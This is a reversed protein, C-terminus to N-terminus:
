VNPRRQICLARCVVIIGLSLFAGYPVTNIEYTTPVTPFGALAAFCITWIAFSLVTIWLVSNRPLCHPTAQTGLQLGAIIAYPGLLFNGLLYPNEFPSFAFFLFSLTILVSVMLWHFRPLEIRVRRQRRRLILGVHVSALVASNFSSLFCAVLGLSTAIFLLDNSAAMSFMQRADIVGDPLPPVILGLPLLMFFPAIGVCVFIAFRAVTNRRLRTVVFVRKWADPAAALLGLGMLAGIVFHYFYDLHWARWDALPLEWYGPRPWISYNIITSFGTTVFYLLYIIAMFAVLVFQVIDTRYIALYGGFLVYFYGLIGTSVAMLTAHDSRMGLTVRSLERLILLESAAYACQAASVFFGLVDSNSNGNQLMKELFQEFSNAQHNNIWSRIVFLGVVSGFAVGSLAPLGLILYIGFYAGFLATLSFVTSAQGIEPLPLGHDVNLPRAALPRTRGSFHVLLLSSVLLLGIWLGPL